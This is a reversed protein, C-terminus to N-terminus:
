QSLDDEILGAKQAAIIEDRHEQYFKPDRLQSRKFKAPTSNGGGNGGNSSSGLSQNGDESKNFLYAKGDKLSKLAEDVGTVSGNDEIKLKDRDVLKLAAELDVVGESVLKNTLAQDIRMNQITQNAQDLESKRTEALKEFEKNDELRKQEDQAQKDKLQKLEQAQAALNSFRPHKWLNENEFVDALQEASLNKLDVGNPSTTSQNGDGGGNNQNQNQNNNGDGSGSGDGNNAGGNNGDGAGGNSNGGNQSHVTM